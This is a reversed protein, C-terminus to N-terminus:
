PCVQYSQLGFSLSHTLSHTELMCLAMWLHGFHGDARTELFMVTPVKIISLYKLRTTSPHRRELRELVDMGGLWAGGLDEKKGKLKTEGGM